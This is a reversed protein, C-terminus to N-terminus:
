PEIPLPADAKIEEMSLLSTVNYIPV